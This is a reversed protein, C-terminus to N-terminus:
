KIIVNLFVDCISKCMAGIYDECVRRREATSSM